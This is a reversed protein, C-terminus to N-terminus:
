SSAIDRDEEKTAGRRRAKELQVEPQEAAPPAEAHATKLLRGDNLYYQSVTAIGAAATIVVLSRLFHQQRRAAYAPAPATAVRAHSRAQMSARTSAARATPLAGLKPVSTKPLM